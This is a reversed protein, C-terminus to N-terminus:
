CFIVTSPSDWFIWLMENSTVIPRQASPAQKWYRFNENNNVPAWRGYNETLFNVYRKSQLELSEKDGIYSIKTMSEWELLQYDKLPVTERFFLTNQRNWPMALFKRM